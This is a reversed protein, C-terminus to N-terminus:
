RTCHSPFYRLTDDAQRIARTRCPLCTPAYKLLADVAEGVPPPALSVWTIDEVRCGQSYLEQDTGIIGTNTKADVNLVYLPTPSGVDSRKRQGVTYFASGDHEGRVKGGFFGRVRGVSILWPSGQCPLGCLQRGTCLLDGSLRA